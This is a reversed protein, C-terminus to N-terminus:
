SGSSTPELGPVPLFKMLKNLHPISSFPSCSSSYNNRLGLGVAAPLFFGKSERQKRSFQQQWHHKWHPQILQLHRWLDRIIAQLMQKSSLSFNEHHLVLCKEDPILLAM